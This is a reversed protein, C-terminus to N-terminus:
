EITSSKLSSIRLKQTGSVGSLMFFIGPSEIYLEKKLKEVEVVEGFYWDDAEDKTLKTNIILPQNLRKM